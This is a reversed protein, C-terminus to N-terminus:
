SGEDDDGGKANADPTVAKTAPSAMMDPSPKDDAAIPADAAVVKLRVFMGSKMHLPQNCVLIYTGPDLVFTKEGSEGPDLDSVEGLSKMQKEVLRSTSENYPMPDGTDRFVLVEHKLRKSENTAHITVPGAHVTSHDLVIRMDQIHSDTTSDQLKATITTDAALAMTPAAMALPVALCSFVAYRIKQDFM